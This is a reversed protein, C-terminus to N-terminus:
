PPPTRSSARASNRAPVRRLLSADFRGAPRRRRPATPLPPQRPEKPLVGRRRWAWAILGVAQQGLQAIAEQQCGEMEQAFSLLAPLALRVQKSVRQVEKRVAAPASQVVEELLDLVTEVEGRRSASSLLRPQSEQSLVVIELLQRLQAFLYEVGELVRHLQSLLHEQQSATTKAPGGVANKGTSARQQEQREILEMREEQEQVVRQLRAQVQEAM